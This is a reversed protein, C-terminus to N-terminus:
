AAVSSLMTQNGHKLLFLTGSGGHAFDAFSQPNYAGKKVAVIVRRSLNM